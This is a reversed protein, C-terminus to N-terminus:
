KNYWNIYPYKKLKLRYYDSPCARINTENGDKDVYMGFGDYDILGGSKIYDIFEKRTMKVM